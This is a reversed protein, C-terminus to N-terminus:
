QAYAFYGYTDEDATAYSRSYLGGGIEETPNVAVWIPAVVGTSRNRSFLYLDIDALALGTAPDGGGQTWLASIVITSMNIDEYLDPARGAAACRRGLQRQSRRPNSKGASIRRGRTHRGPYHSGYSRQHAYRWQCHLHRGRDSDHRFGPRYCRRRGPFPRRSGM